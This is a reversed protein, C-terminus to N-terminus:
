VCFVAVTFEWVCGSNLRGMFDCMEVRSYVCVCLFCGCHVVM